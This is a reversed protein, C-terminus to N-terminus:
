KRFCQSFKWRGQTTDREATSGERRCALHAHPGEWQLNGTVSLCEEVVGARGVAARGTSAESHCSSSRACSCPCLVSLTWTPDRWGRCASPQATNAEPGAPARACSQPNTSNSFHRRSKQVSGRYLSPSYTDPYVCACGMRLQPHEKSFYLGPQPPLSVKQKLELKEKQQKGPIEQRPFEAWIVDWTHFVLKVYVLVPLPPTRIALVLLIPDMLKLVSLLRLFGQTNRM